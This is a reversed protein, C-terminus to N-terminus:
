TSGCIMTIVMRPVSPQGNKGGDTSKYFRLTNVYVVDANNPDADVNM